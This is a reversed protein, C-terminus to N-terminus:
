SAPESQSGSRTNGCELVDVITKPTVGTGVKDDIVQLGSPTTVAKGASQAMVTSTIAGAFVASLGATLAFALISARPFAQMSITRLITAISPSM